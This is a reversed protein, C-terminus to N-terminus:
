EAYGRDVGRRALDAVEQWRALDWFGRAAGSTSPAVFLRTTGIGEPQIGYSVKRGLFEEAARKGNFCLWAPAAAEIRARLAGAAQPVFSLGSDGGSQDKVLDTLGIGVSSLLRFEAPALERPTLGVAALTPWFRNGPGAYYHGRRASATGAASGCVVLRMGSPLVDDLVAAPEQLLSGEERPIAQASVDQEMM